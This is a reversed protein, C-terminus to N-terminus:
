RCTVLGHDFMLPSTGADVFRVSCSGYPLVHRTTVVDLDNQLLRATPGDDELRVMGTAELLEAFATSDERDVSPDHNVDGGLILAGDVTALHDQVDRLEEVRCDVSDQDFGANTHVVVLTTPEGDLLGSLKATRGPASCEAGMDTWTDPEFREGYVICNDPYAPSCQWDSGEPLVRELPVGPESCAFPALLAEGELGECWDEHWVEQLFLLDPPDEALAEALLREADLTCLNNEYWAECTERLESEEVLDLLPTTGANQTAVVLEDPLEDGACALLALAGVM